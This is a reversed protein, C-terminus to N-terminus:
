HMIEFVLGSGQAGGAQTTGYLNGSPDLILDGTPHFGDTGHGFIHVVKYTWNGATAPTMKFITGCGGGCATQNAGQMTTGFLNGAADMVLGAVANASPANGFAHIVREAWGGKSNLQLEFVVGYGAGGQYATGYLNGAADLLLDGYPYKGDFSGKFARLVTETWGNSTKALEFVTGYGSAGGAYTSGFLNGTKDFVLGDYPSAGDAGGAFAYLVSETWSSSGPTLKFVTGCGSSCVSGINGGILTTGYLNGAADFLLRAYPEGGDSGGTFTYLVTETWGSSAPALKFATGCGLTCNANGGFNTTGYLNGAADLALGAAPQAGDAGGTFSYLVTETWVGNPNATIEFVTGQGYAGGLESTGYLNGAKDFILGAYPLKPDSGGTFSYLASESGSGGSPITAETQNSYASETGDQNVATSVYFYTQGGQVTSDTYNTNPDLTPNIKTYPGNPGPGRYVNYGIVGQTTSADWSLNVMHAAAPAPVFLFSLTLLCAALKLQPTLSIV